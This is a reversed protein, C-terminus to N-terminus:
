STSEPPPATSAPASAMVVRHTGSPTLRLSASDRIHRVEVPISDRRPGVSRPAAPPLQADEETADAVRWASLVAGLPRGDCEIVVRATTRLMAFDDASIQDRRRIFVGGPQETAASDSSAFMAA